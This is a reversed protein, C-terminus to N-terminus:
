LTGRKQARSRDWRLLFLLRQYITPRCPYLALSPPRVAHRRWSGADFPRSRRQAVPKRVVHRERVFAHKPLTPWDPPWGSLAAAAISRCLKELLTPIPRQALRDGPRAGRATLLSRHRVPTLTSHGRKSMRRLIAARILSGLVQTDVLVQTSFHTM